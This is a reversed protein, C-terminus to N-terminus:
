QSIELFFKWLNDLSPPDAQVRIREGGSPNPFALSRAHLRIGGNLESRRAGYKLDGKIRLGVREFQCRIQHHRGTILEVDFFLYNTGTGALRYKLEAKKRGPGGEDFAFSKNKKADFQIWHTLAAAPAIEKQPKETIAWYHKEVAPAAGASKEGSFAASLFALAHPTLAFLACGSVPVDLRHVAAPLGRPLAAAFKGGDRELADAIMRPLDGMGAAAGEVAEGALKNVVVCESDLYLIRSMELIRRGGEPAHNNKDNTM